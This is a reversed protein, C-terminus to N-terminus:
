FPDDFAEAPTTAHEKEKPPFLSFWGNWEGTPICDLKLSFRGDKEFVAGCKLWHVKDSKGDKQGACVDYRKAM